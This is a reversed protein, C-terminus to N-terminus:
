EEFLDKEEEEYEFGEEDGIEDTVEDEVYNDAPVEPEAYFGAQATQIDASGAEYSAATAETQYGTEQYQPENYSSQLESNVYQAEPAVEPQQSKILAIHQEEIERRNAEIVDANNQLSEILNQYNTREAELTQSVYKRIDELMGTTYEMMGIRIDLAEQNAQDIIALRDNNAQRIIEDAQMNALTVIESEDVMRKAQQSAEEIIGEARTRADTLIGEKNRMIKKSREIEGPLKIRLENLMSELDNKSVIIRDSSFAQFKCSDIFMEIENIMDEVSKKGM